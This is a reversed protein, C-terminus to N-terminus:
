KGGPRIDIVWYENADDYYPRVNASFGPNAARWEAEHPYRSAAAYGDVAIDRRRLQLAKSPASSAYSAQSCSDSPSVSDKDDEYQDQYHDHGRSQYRDEPYQDRRNGQYQDGGAQSDAYGTGSYARETRGRAGLVSPEAHAELNGYAMRRNQRSAGSSFYDPPPMGCAANALRASRGMSRVSSGATNAAKHAHFSASYDSNASRLSTDSCVSRPAARYKQSQRRTSGNDDSYRSTSSM